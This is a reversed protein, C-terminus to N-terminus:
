ESRGNPATNGASARPDVERLTRRGDSRLAYMPVWAPGDPKGKRFAGFTGDSLVRVWGVQVMDRDLNVMLATM